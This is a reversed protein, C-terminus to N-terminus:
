SIIRSIDYHQFYAHEIYNELLCINIAFPGIILFMGIDCGEVFLPFDARLTKMCTIGRWTLALLLDSKAMFISWKPLSYSFVIETLYTWAGSSQSITGPLPWPDKPFWNTIHSRLSSIAKTLVVLLYKCQLYMSSFGNEEFLIVLRSAFLAVRFWILTM